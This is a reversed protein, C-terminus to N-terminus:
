QGVGLLSRWGVITEGAAAAVPKFAFAAVSWPVGTEATAFTVANSSATASTKDEIVLATNANSDRVTYGTGATLIGSASFQNGIAIILEGDVATTIATGTLPNSSSDGDLQTATDYPLTAHNGSYEISYAAVYAGSSGSVTITDAGTGNTLCWFLMEQYSDDSPWTYSGVKTWSNGKSDSITVAGNNEWEVAVILLNGTGVITLNPLLQTVPTANTNAEGQAQIAWAM